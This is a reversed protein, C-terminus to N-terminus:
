DRDLFGNVLHTLPHAVVVALTIPLIMVLPRYVAGWVEEVGIMNSVVAIALEVTIAIALVYIIRVHRFQYVPNNTTLSSFIAGGLLTALTWFYFWWENILLIVNRWPAIGEGYQLWSALRVAAELIPYLAFVFLASSLWKLKARQVDGAISFNAAANLLAILVIAFLGASEAMRLLGTPDGARLLNVFKGLNAVVFLCILFPMRRTVKAWRHFRAVRVLPNRSAAIAELSIPSPWNTSLNTLAFLAYVNVAIDVFPLWSYAGGVAADYDDFADLAMLASIMLLLPANFTLNERDTLAIWAVIYLGPMWFLSDLSSLMDFHRDDLLPLRALLADASTGLIFGSCSLSVVLSFTSLAMLLTVLIAVKRKALYTQLTM